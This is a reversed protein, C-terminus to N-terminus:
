DEEKYLFIVYDLINAQEDEGYERLTDSFEAADMGADLFEGREGVFVKLTNKSVRYVKNLIDFYEYQDEYSTNPNALRGLYEDYIDESDYQLTRAQLFNKCTKAAIRCRKNLTDEWEIFDVVDSYDIEYPLNTHSINYEVDFFDLKVDGKNNLIGRLMYDWDELHDLTQEEDVSSPNVSMSGPHLHFWGKIASVCHGDKLADRMVADLDDCDSTACSSEQEPIFVDDVYIYFQKDTEYVKEVLTFWTVETKQNEAHKITYQIKAWAKASFTVGSCTPGSYIVSVTHKM